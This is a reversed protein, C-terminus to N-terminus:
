YLFPVPHEGADFGKDRLVTMLRRKFDSGSTRDAKLTEMAAEVELRVREGDYNESEGFLDRLRDGTEDAVEERNATVGSEGETNDDDDELYTAETGEREMFSAVLDSLDIPSDEEASHESGSSQCLQAARTVEDFAAAVRNFRIPKM